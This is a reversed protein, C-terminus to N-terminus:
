SNINTNHGLDGLLYQVLSAACIAATEARLVRPGLSYSCFGVSKAREVETAEFGGEPGILIIASEVNKGTLNSFPNNSEEWFAIKHAFNDAMDLVQDYNMPDYIKVLRSRRCQKLSEKAIAQWREMQRAEKKPNSLPISRASFFPVWQTVGLQTAQKIIEDMKKHKLMATCLTLNLMSETESRKVSTIRAEISDPQIELIEGKLDTGEGDTMSLTEGPKFRLVRRIHHADQGTIAITDGLVSGPKIIFKQM